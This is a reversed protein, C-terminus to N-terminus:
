LDTVAQQFPYEPQPSPIAQEAPQSPANENCQRCQSRLLRVSADLGPWFFRERANALMGNIGQHAAHLGELVIIRLKSPILM